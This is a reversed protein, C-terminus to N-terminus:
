QLRWVRTCVYKGGADKFSKAAINIKSGPDKKPLKAILNRVGTVMSAAEKKSPALSLTIMIASKNDVPLERLKELFKITLENGAGRQTLPVSDEIEFPNNNDM